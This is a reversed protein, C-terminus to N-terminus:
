SRGSRLREVEAELERIRAAQRAVLAEFAELADSLRGVYDNSQRVHKRQGSLARDTKAILTGGVVITRKIIKSGGKIAVFTGHAVNRAKPGSEAAVDHGWAVTSAWSACAM